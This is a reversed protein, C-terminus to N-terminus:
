KEPLWSLVEDNSIVLPLVNKHNKTAAVDLIVQGEKLSANIVEWEPMKTKHEMLKGEVTSTFADEGLMIEEQIRKGNSAQLTVILAANPALEVDAVESYDVTDAGVYHEPIFQIVKKLQNESLQYRMRKAM